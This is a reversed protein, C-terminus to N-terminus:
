HGIILSNMGFKDTQTQTVENLIINVLVIWKGAFKIIDQPTHTHTDTHTHTHTHTCNNM